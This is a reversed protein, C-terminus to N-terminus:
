RCGTWVNRATVSTSAVCWGAAAALDTHYAALAHLLDVDCSGVHCRWTRPPQDDRRPEEQGRCRPETRAEAASEEAYVGGLVGGRRVKSPQVASAGGQHGDVQKLRLAVSGACINCLPVGETSANSTAAEM